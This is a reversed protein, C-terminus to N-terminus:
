MRHVTFECVRLICLAKTRKTTVLTQTSPYENIIRTFRKEGHQRARHCWERADMADASHRVDCCIKDRHFKM